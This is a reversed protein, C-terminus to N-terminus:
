SEPRLHGEVLGDFGLRVLSEGLAATERLREEWAALERFARGYAQQEALSLRPVQARRADIRSSGPQTRPVASRLVGALFDPDLHEPDVRYRALPPDLVGADSVVEAQGTPSAVVDGPLVPVPEADANKAPAHHIALLGAKALEGITTVPHARPEALLELDPPDLSAKRLNELVGTFEAAFDRGGQALRRRAPSLDVDDDLVDIIRVTHPSEANPDMQHYFWWKEVEPLDDDAEMLWLLSPAKEGPKPRRLLWLDPGGEALTVVARLAGSRLLNGRIRKGPRRSAAATPMLIAVQGGPKVHALCHQVWALESEGRPPLGYEWRPDSTLEAYGWARENFPPHCVVADALEGPFGDWRLSDGAVIRTDVGHLLLRIATIAAATEDVDQGLVREAPGARLLNGLGCAPDLVTGEGQYVLRTVWASLDESTVDLRRSHAQVYRQCLAEFASPFGREEVLETLLGPDTPPEAPLGPVLDVVKDSGHQQRLLQVGAGVVLRGLNLDDGGARLRQWTRDAVSIRFRKGNRSLWDEVERLSFLPSSATGGVPRPFDEHRRRWNSVAARGVDVLRAIDGANVTADQSM